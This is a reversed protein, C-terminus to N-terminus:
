KSWSFWSSFPLAQARRRLRGYLDQLWDVSAYWLRTSNHQAVSLALTGVTTAAVRVLSRGSASWVLRVILRVVHWSLRRCLVAAPGHGGLLWMWALTASWYLARDLTRSQPLPTLLPWLVRCLHVLAHQRQGQFLHWFCAGMAGGLVRWQGHEMYVGKAGLARASGVAMATCATPNRM